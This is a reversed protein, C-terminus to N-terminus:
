DQEVKVDSVSEVVLFYWPRQKRNCAFLGHFTATVKYHPPTTSPGDVSASVPLDWSMSDYHTFTQWSEDRKLKFRVRVGASEPTRPNLVTWCRDNKLGSGEMHHFTTGRVTIMEGCFQAPHRDIACLDVDQARAVSSLSLFVIVFSCILSAIQM